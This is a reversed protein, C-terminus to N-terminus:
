HRRAGAASKREPSRSARAPPRQAVPAPSACTPTPPFRRGRRGHRDLPLAPREHRARAREDDHQQRRRSNANLRFALGSPGVAIDGASWAGAAGLRPVGVPDLPVAGSGRNLGHRTPRDKLCPRTSAVRARRRGTRCTRPAAALRRRSGITEPSRSPRTPASGPTAPATARRRSSARPAARLPSGAGSARPACTTASLSTCTRDYAIFFSSTRAHSIRCPTCCCDLFPYSVSTVLSRSLQGRHGRSSM